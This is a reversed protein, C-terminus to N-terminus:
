GRGVDQLINNLNLQKWQKPFPERRWNGQSLNIRKEMDNYSVGVGDAKMWKGFRKIVQSGQKTLIAVFLYYPATVVLKM